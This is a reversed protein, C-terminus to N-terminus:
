GIIILSKDYLLSVLKDLKYQPYVLKLFRLTEFLKIVVKEPVVKLEVKSYASTEAFM